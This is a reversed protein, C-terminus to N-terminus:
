QKGCRHYTTAENTTASPWSGQEDKWIKASHDRTKADCRTDCAQDRECSSKNNQSATKSAHRSSTMGKQMSYRSQVTNEDADFGLVLLIKPQDVTARQARQLQVEIIPKQAFIQAVTPVCAFFKSLHKSGNRLALNTRYHAVNLIARHLLQSM